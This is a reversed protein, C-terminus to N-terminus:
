QCVDIWDVEITFPGDFGDALFLGISTAQAPEFPADDTRTVDDFWWTGAAGPAFGDVSPQRAFAARHAVLPILEADDGRIAATLSFEVTAELEPKKAAPVIFKFTYRHPWTEFVELKAGLVELALPEGGLLDGSAGGHAGHPRRYRRRVM